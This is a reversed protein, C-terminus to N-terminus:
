IFRTLLYILLLVGILVLVPVVLMPLAMRKLLSKQEPSLTVQRPHRIELKRAKKLMKISRAIDGQRRYVVGLNHHASAHTPDEEIARKYSQEAKIFDGADFYLNGLRFYVQAKDAGYRM